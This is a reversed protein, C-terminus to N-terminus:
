KGYRTMVDGEGRLPFISGWSPSKSMLVATETMIKDASDKPVELVVEDHVHFVIRAPWGRSSRNEIKMILDFLIDRAVAQTVNETLKGGHTDVRAHGAGKGKGIFTRREVRGTEPDRISRAFRYWISRGSPLVMRNHKGDRMMTVCGNQGFQTTEGECAKDWAIACLKWFRVTMPSNQRYLDRLRILEPYDHRDSDWQWFPGPKGLATWEAHLDPYNGVDIGEKEAGMTVLAGAGGNYGLALNSVKGRGRLRCWECQKGCKKGKDCGFMKSLGQLMEDKDVGFMQAATAEYIKGQGRWFEDQVWSENTLGGLVRAEIANYDFPIFVHERAPIIAGRVTGKAIQPADRGATGMLLRKADALPAEYTPMNQPQIGRGAERGTHAGHFQLSGRIRGDRCRTNLAAQHKQVSSLSMRGKLALAEKVIDPCLPDFLAAERHDKDLSPMPYGQDELWKNLQPGSNANEIGALAELDAKVRDKEQEVQRVAMVSMRKHHRFGRDNIRQDAEYQAQVDDPTEPFQSAVGAEAMVDQNCYAEFEAMEKPHRHPDHYGLCGCEAAVKKLSRAPIPKSFFNILWKGRADKEVPSRVAKAVEGLRGYVGYVNAQVATCHWNLPDIYEGDGMGIERSLCIREFNANYAYKAIGPDLLLDEFRSKEPARLTRAAGMAVAGGTFRRLPSYSTTLVQFDADEAYVYSGHKVDVSSRTEIDLRIGVLKPKPM